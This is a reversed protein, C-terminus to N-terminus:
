KKTLELNIPGASPIKATLPTKDLSAYKEPLESKIGGMKPMPMGPGPTTPMGGKNKDKMAKEYEPTGPKMKEPDGGGIKPTKLVTVKYDGPPAGSKDGTKLSFKGSADTQGVVLNAKGSTPIFSVTAGEVPTGDLTVVGEVKSLGGGCGVLSAFLVAVALAAGRRIM